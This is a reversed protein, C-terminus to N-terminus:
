SVEVLPPGALVLRQMNLRGQDAAQKALGSMRFVVVSANYARNYQPQLLDAPQPEEQSAQRTGETAPTASGGTQHAALQCATSLEGLALHLCAPLSWQKQWLRPGLLLM